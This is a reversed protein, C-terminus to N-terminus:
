KSSQGSPAAGDRRGLTHALYAPTDQNLRPSPPFLKESTPDTFGFFGMLPGGVLQTSQKYSMLGDQQHVLGVLHGIEHAALQGLRRGLAAAEPRPTPRSSVVAVDQPDRNGFDIYAVQGGAFVAAGVQFFGPVSVYVRSAPGDPASDDSSVINLNYGSFVQRMEAIANKKVLDDNGALGKHYGTTDFPPIRIPRGFYRMDMGGNFDIVVAQPRPLPLAVNRGTVTLTVRYSGHTPIPLIEVPPLRMHGPGVFLHAHADARFTYEFSWRRPANGDLGDLITATEANILLLGVRLRAPDLSFRLRDGTKFPGLDYRDFDGFPFLEDVIQAVDNRWAVPQAVNNNGDTVGVQTLGLGILNDCGIILVALVLPIWLM